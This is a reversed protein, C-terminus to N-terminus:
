ADPAAPFIEASSPISPDRLSVKQLISVNDRPMHIPICHSTRSFPTLFKM